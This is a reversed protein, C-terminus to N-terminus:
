INWDRAYIEIEQRKRDDLTSRIQSAFPGLTHMECVFYEKRESSDTSRRHHCFYKERPGGLSFAMRYLFHVPLTEAPKAKKIPRHPICMSWMTVVRFHGVVLYRTKWESQNIGNRSACLNDPLMRLRHHNVPPHGLLTVLPAKSKHGPSLLNTKLAITQHTCRGTRVLGGLTASPANTGLISFQTSTWGYGYVNGYM